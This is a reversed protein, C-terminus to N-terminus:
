FGFDDDIGTSRIYKDDRDLHMQWVIAEEKDYFIKGDSCEYEMREIPYKM